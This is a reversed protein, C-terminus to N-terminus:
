ITQKETIEAFTKSCYLVNSCSFITKKLYDNKYKKIYDDISLEDETIEKLRKEFQEKSGAKKYLKEIFSPPIKDNKIFTEVCEKYNEIKQYNESSFIKCLTAWFPIIYIGLKEDLIYGVDYIENHSSFGNMSKQLFTNYSNSFETIEEYKLTEPIEILSSIGSKLEKDNTKQYKDFLELLNDIKKNTTIVEDSDFFDKFDKISKEVYNKVELFKEENDSYLSEPEEIIKAVAYNMVSEKEYSPIVNSIELMFYTDKFKFIRILAFQSPCVEKLQTMKVLPIVTYTKENVLNYLVFGNNLRKKIEFVSSISNGLGYIIEKEIESLNKNEGIYLEPITKNESFVTRETIYPICLAQLQMPSVNIAGITKIYEEFDEQTKESTQVFDIINGITESITQIETIVPM